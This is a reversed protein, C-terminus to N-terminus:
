HAGPLTQDRLRLNWGQERFTIPFFNPSQYQSNLIESCRYCGNAWAGHDDTMFMVVNTKSTAARSSLSLFPAAVVQRRSLMSIINSRGSDDLPQEFKINEYGLPLTVHSGINGM